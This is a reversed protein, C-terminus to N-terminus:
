KGKRYKHSLKCLPNGPHHEVHAAQGNKAKRHGRAPQKCAICRGYREHIALADPVSMQKWKGKIQIEIVTSRPM